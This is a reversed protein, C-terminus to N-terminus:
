DKKNKRIKTVQYFYQICLLADVSNSCLVSQVQTFADWINIIIMLRDLLAISGSIWFRISIQTMQAMKANTKM